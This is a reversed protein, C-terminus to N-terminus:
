TLAAPADPGHVGDEHVVQQNSRSAKQRDVEVNRSRVDADGVAGDPDIASSPFGVVAPVPGQLPRRVGAASHGSTTGGPRPAIHM